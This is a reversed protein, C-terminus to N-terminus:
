KGPIINSIEYEKIVKGVAADINHEDWQTISITKTEDETFYEWAMLEEWEDNGATKDCFYGASDSDLLYVENEWIIKKPPRENKKIEEVIDEDLKRIKIPKTMSLALDGQDEVSLYMVDDGSDIKYEWSFNEKGWDYEYVEKVQWTKLDYEFVFGEDLDTVKMNTVDYEPEENKKKLFDFLGM